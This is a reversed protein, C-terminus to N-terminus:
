RAGSVHRIMAHARGTVIGHYTMNYRLAAWCTSGHTGQRLVVSRQMDNRVKGRYLKVHKALASTAHCPM